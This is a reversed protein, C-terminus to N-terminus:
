VYSRDRAKTLASYLAADRPNHVASRKLLLARATDPTAGRLKRRRVGTVWIRSRCIRLFYRKYSVDCGIWSASALVIVHIGIIIKIQKNQKRLAPPSLGFYNGCVMKVPNLGIFTGTYHVATYILIHWLQAQSRTSFKNGPYQARPAPPLPSTM